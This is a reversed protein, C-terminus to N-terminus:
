RDSGKKTLIIKNCVVTGAVLVVVAALMLMLYLRENAGAFIAAILAVLGSLLYIGGTATQYRRVIAESYETRIDQRMLFSSNRHLLNAIGAAFIGIICLWSLWEMEQM